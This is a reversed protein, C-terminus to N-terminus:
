YKDANVLFDVLKKFPPFIMNLIYFIVTVGSGFLLLEICIVLIDFGSIHSM